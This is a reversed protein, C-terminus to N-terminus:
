GMMAYFGDGENTGEELGGAQEMLKIVVQRMESIRTWICLRFYGGLNKPM